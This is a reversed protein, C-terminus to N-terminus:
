LSFFFIGIYIYSNKETPSEFAKERFKKISRIKHTRVIRGMFIKIYMKLNIKLKIRYFFIMIILHIENKKKPFFFPSERTAIMIGRGVTCNPLGMPVWM